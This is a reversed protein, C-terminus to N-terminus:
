LQNPLYKFTNPIATNDEIHRDEFMTNSLQTNTVLGLWTRKFLDYSDIDPSSCENEARPHYVRWHAEAMEFNVVPHKFGRLCMKMLIYWSVAEKVNYNDPILPFGENDVPLGLYFVEIEGEKFSLHIYNPNLSYSNEICFPLHNIKNCCRSKHTIKGTRKLQRCKYTIGQLMEIDCPLKARYDIVKIIQSKDELGTFPKICDLAEGTWEYADSIWSSNNPKFDRYIKAIIAKPSITRYVM